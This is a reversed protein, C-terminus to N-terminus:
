LASFFRPARRPLERALLEEVEASTTLKLAEKMLSDARVAEISRVAHKVLPIAAPAMSLTRIGLGILAIAQIPDAAMEGCLEIPVKHTRAAEVLSVLTRLVAPHLPQYLHAVNSNARDVALLYQILDNTGVSLFDSERAFVDVMMAAAPVEIMVGVPLAANHEVEADLLEQKVESIIDKAKRLESITTIL